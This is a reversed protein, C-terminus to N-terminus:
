GAGQREKEMDAISDYGIQKFIYAYREEILNRGEAAAKSVDGHYLELTRDSYTELESRLYIGASYEARGKFALPYREALDKMWAGEIDVIRDILPNEKLSPVLNDIRAYKMEMLNTNEDLAEQLDSLYSELTETSLVCFSGRRMLRLADPNEQCASPGASLVGLFMRLEIDVIEDLLRDRDAEGAM